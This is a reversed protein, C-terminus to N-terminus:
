RICRSVSFPPAGVPAKAVESRATPHSGPGPPSPLSRSGPACEARTPVGPFAFEVILADIRITLLSHREVRYFPQVERSGKVAEECQFCLVGCQNFGLCLFDLCKSLPHGLEFSTLFDQDCLGFIRRRGGRGNCGLM